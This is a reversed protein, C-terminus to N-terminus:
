LLRRLSQKYLAKILPTRTPQYTASAAVAGTLQPGPQPLLLGRGGAGGVRHGDPPSRGLWGLTFFFLYFM